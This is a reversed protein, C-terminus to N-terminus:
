QLGIRHILQQFRPDGRLPDFDPDVNIGLIENARAALLKNLWLLANDAEGNQAYDRAYAYMAMEGIEGQANAASVARDMELRARWYGKKGGSASERQMTEMATISNAGPVYSSTAHRRYFELHTEFYERYMGKHALADALRSCSPYFTPDIELAREYQHIANDYQRADQYIQGAQHYIMISLPELQEARLVERIAQDHRGM